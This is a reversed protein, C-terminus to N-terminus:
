QHSDSNEGYKQSLRKQIIKVAIAVVLIVISLIVYVVIGESRFINFDLRKTIKFLNLVTILYLLIVIICGWFIDKAIKKSLM